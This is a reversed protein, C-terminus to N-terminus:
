GGDAALKKEALDLSHQAEQSTPDVKLARRYAVVADKSKGQKYYAEGLLILFRARNPSLRLAQRMLAAANAYDGQEFSVEGLGAIADANKPDAERARAFSTQARAFDGTALKQRGTKVLVDADSGAAAGSFPDVFGRPIAKSAVVPKPAVPAAAVPKPAIPATAVPKPAIPHAEIHAPEPKPAVPVPTRAVVPEPVVAAPKISAAVPAPAIAVPRLPVVDHPRDTPWLLFTAIALFSVGGAISAILVWGRDRRGELADLDEEPIPAIARDSFWGDDGVARQPGTPEGQVTLDAGPVLTVAAAREAAARQAAKTALMRQPATPDDRLEETHLAPDEVVISPSASEVREPRRIISVEGSVSDTSTPSFPEQAPLERLAPRRGPNTQDRDRPPEPEDPEDPPPVAARAAAEVSSELSTQMALTKKNTSGPNTTARPTTAGGTALPVSAPAIRPLAAQPAESPAVEGRLCAIIAGMKEFRNSPVKELAKEVVAALWHPVGPERMRLVAGDLLQQVVDFPSTGPFPLSGTLMEFAVIGLSFVDSRADITGGRAQEPAMYHADGFAMGLATQKTDVDPVVLKALGFDLLKVFDPQGRRVSLFVNRPRLDRHIYGSDHAQELAEAIQVLIAVVRAPALKGERKLTDDLTEGDLLEMAFFLRGDATRGFDMVQLLHDNDLQGITTAERRFREVATEDRSLERHLVKVALKRHLTTHEARYIGGSKGQGIKDLVLYRDAITQGVLPDAVTKSVTIVAAGCSPCFRADPTLAEGCQTCVSM